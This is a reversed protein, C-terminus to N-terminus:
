AGLSVRLYSIKLKKNPFILGEELKKRWYFVHRWYVSRNTFTLNALTASM